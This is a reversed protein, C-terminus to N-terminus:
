TFLVTLNQGLNRIFYNHQSGQVLHFFGHNRM